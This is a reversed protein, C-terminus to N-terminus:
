NVLVKAVTTWESKDSGFGIARIRFEMISDLEYSSLDIFDESTYEGNRWTTEGKVRQEIAYTRAGKVPLWSLRITGPKNPVAVAKFDLPTSVLVPEKKSAKNRTKLPTFGSAELIATDGKAFAEVQVSTLYLQNVVELRCTERLAYRDSGGKSAALLKASSFAAHAPELDVLAATKISTLLTHNTLRSIILASFADLDAASMSKYNHTIM